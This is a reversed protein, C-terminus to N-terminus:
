TKWSCLFQEWLLSSFFYPFTLAHIIKVFVATRTRVTLASHLISWLWSNTSKCRCMCDWQFIAALSSMKSFDFFVLAFEQCVNAQFNLMCRQHAGCESFIYTPGITTSERPYVLPMNLINQCLWQFHIFDHCMYRWIAHLPAFYCICSTSVSM